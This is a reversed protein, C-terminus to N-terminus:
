ERLWPALAKDPDAIEEVSGYWYAEWGIEPMGTFLMLNLPYLHQRLLPPLRRPVPLDAQALSDRPRAGGDCGGATEVRSDHQTPAWKRDDTM